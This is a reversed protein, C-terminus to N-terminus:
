IRPKRVARDSSPTPKSCAVMPAVAQFIPITV